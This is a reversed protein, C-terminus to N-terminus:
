SPCAGNSCRPSCKLSIAASVATTVAVGVSYYVGAVAPLQRVTGDGNTVVVSGAAIAGAAIMKLTRGTGNLLQIHMPDTTAAPEDYCVALPLDAVSTVVTFHNDANGQKVLQFRTTSPADDRYGTLRGDNHEGVTLAGDNALPVTGRPRSAIWQWLCLALAVILLIYLYM